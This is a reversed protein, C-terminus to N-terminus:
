PQERRDIGREIEDALAAGRNTGLSRLREIALRELNVSEVPQRREFREQGTWQDHYDPTWIRGEREAAKASAPVRWPPVGMFGIPNFLGTLWAVLPGIVAVGVLLGILMPLTM